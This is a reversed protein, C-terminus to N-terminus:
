LGKSLPEHELLSCCTGVKDYGYVCCAWCFLRIALSYCFMPAGHHQPDAILENRELKRRDLEDETWAFDQLMRRGSRLWGLLSSPTGQVAAALRGYM